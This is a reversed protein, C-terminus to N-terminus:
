TTFTWFRKCMAGWCAEALPSRGISVIQVSMETELIKMGDALARTAARGDDWAVIAKSNFVSGPYGAPFIMFPRGSEFKVRDPFVEIPSKTPNYTTEHM